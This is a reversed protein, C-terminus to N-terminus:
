TAAAVPLQLTFATGGGPRREHWIRGDHAAVIQSVIALGLGTGETKTTTFLAFVDVDEPLGVGTDEITLRVCTPEAASRVTLTGGEPMAEVANKCLNMLVQKLKAGDARVAPLDEPLSAVIALPPPQSEGLTALVESVLQRLSTPGFRFDQRRSLSRFEYLLGNLHEINGLLRQVGSM